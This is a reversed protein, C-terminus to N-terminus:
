GATEFDDFDFNYLDIMFKEKEAVLEALEDTYYQRYDDDKSRYIKFFTNPSNVARPDKYKKYGELTRKWGPTLDFKDQHSNVCDYFDEFLHSFRMPFLIGSDLYKEIYYQELQELDLELKVNNTDIFYINRYSYIGLYNLPSEHYHYHFNSNGMNFTNPDCTLLMKVYLHFNRKMEGVDAVQKMCNLLVSSGTKATWKWKSVYHDWPNRV